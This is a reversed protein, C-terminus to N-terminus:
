WMITTFLRIDAETLHTGFILPGQGEALVREMRDLSEFLLEVNADYAEQTTAFGAKYVGNDIEHYVWENLEDIQTRLEALLLPRREERVEPPLLADFETYFMRIIEASENSGITENKRDWLVPVTARRSYSSDAREYLQRLHTFGYLPEVTAEEADEGWLLPGNPCLRGALPVLQIVGELGKLSRVINPRHAWRCSWGIYLVSRNPKPPSRAGLAASIWKRFQSAKRRFQGDADALNLPEKSAPPTTTPSM